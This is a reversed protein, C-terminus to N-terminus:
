KRVCETINDTRRPRSSNKVDYGAMKGNKFSGIYMKGSKAVVYDVIILTGSYEDRLAKRYIKYGHKKTRHNCSSVTKTGNQINIKGGVIETNKNRDFEGSKDWGGVFTARTLGDDGVEFSITLYRVGGCLWEGVMEPNCGSVAGATQGAHRGTRDAASAAGAILAVAALACLVILLHKKM